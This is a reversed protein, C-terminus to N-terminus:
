NLGQMGMKRFYHFWKEEPQQIKKLETLSDEENIGKELVQYMHILNSTKINGGCHIFTKKNQISDMIAKFTQYHIEQLNGCDIPFHIFHIGLNEIIEAEKSLYNKTSTPSISVIVEYEESKLFQLQEETPQGGAALKKSYQYYNFINNVM